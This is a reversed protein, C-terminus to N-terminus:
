RHLPASVNSERVLHKNVLAMRTIAFHRKLRKRHIALHMEPAMKSPRLARSNRRACEHACSFLNLRFIAKCDIATSYTAVLLLECQKENVKKSNWFSPISAFTERSTKTCMYCIYIMLWDETLWWDTMLWGDTLWWDTMQWDDTLWWDTMLWDHTLEWDTM